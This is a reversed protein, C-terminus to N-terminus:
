GFSCGSGASEDANLNRPVSLFLSIPCPSWWVSTSPLLGSSPQPERTSSPVPTWSRSSAHRQTCSLFLLLNRRQLATFHYILGPDFLFCHCVSSNAPASRSSFCCRCTGVSCMLHHQRDAAVVNLRVRPSPVAKSCM